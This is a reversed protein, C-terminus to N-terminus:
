LSKTDKGLVCPLAVTSNSDGMMEQAMNWHMKWEKTNLDYCYSVSLSIIEQAPVDIM